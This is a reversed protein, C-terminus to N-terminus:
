IQQLAALVSQVNPQGTWKGVISRDDRVQVLTHQVRVEFEERLSRSDDFDTKIFTIDSPVSGINSLISNELARCTPCWDAHFFYVLRRDNYIEPNSDFQEQTIYRGNNNAQVTESNLDVSEGGTLVAAGIGLFLLAGLITLFIKM